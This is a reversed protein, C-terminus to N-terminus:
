FVNIYQVHLPVLVYVRASLRLRDAHRQLSLVRRQHSVQQVQRRLRHGPLPHSHLVVREGHHHGTTCHADHAHLVHLSADMSQFGFTM